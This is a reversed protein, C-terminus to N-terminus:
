QAILRRVFHSAGDKVSVICLGHAEQSLNVQIRDSDHEIRIQQYITRGAEDYVTLVADESLSTPVEVEILNPSVFYANLAENGERDFLGSSEYPCLRLVQRRVDFIAHKGGLVYLCSDISVMNHYNRGVPLPNSNMYYNNTQPDFEWVEAREQFDFYGGSLFIRDGIAAAAMAHVGAPFNPLSTWTGESADFVDAQNTPSTYGGGCFRYYKDGASTHAGYWFQNDPLSPETVWADNDADYRQFLTSVGQGGISYIDNNIAVGDHIARAPTLSAGETWTDSIPDYMFHSGVPSGSNPFGGGFFHLRGKIAAGAPQQAAYPVNAKTTWTDTDPDYAYHATTAGGSGGGGMVHINGDLVAVVPFTFEEPVSALTDWKQATVSLSVLLM